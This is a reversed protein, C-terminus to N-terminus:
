MQIQFYCHPGAFANYRYPSNLKNNKKEVLKSTSNSVGSKEAHQEFASSITIWMLSFLMEKYETIRKVIQVM